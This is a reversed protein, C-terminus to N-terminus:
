KTWLEVFFSRVPRFHDVGFVLGAYVIFVVVFFAKHTSVDLVLQLFVACFPLWRLLLFARDSYAEIVKRAQWGRLDKELLRRTAAIGFALLFISLLLSSPANGGALAAGMAFRLPHPAANFVIELGPVGRAVTSYCVNLALVAVFMSFVATSFLVYGSLLGCATLTAAFLVAARQSIAGAQLPRERKRPHQRDSEADLIDNLTYLGGYLLVNFSLYLTLLAPLLSTPFGKTILAAGLVVGIFSLHYRFRILRLWPKAQASISPPLETASRATSTDTGDTMCFPHGCDRCRFEWQGDRRTLLSIRHGTLVCVLPHRVRKLGAAQLLFSHGCHCAYETLGCRETVVHVVHGFWGCRHRVFKRFHEEQAYPSTGREFLLPHGCDGCLYECHGNREGLKTYSHSGLFCMLNHRVHLPAGDVRLLCAGCSCLREKGATETRSRNTFRHGLIRCIMGYLSCRVLTAVAIKMYSPLAAASKM